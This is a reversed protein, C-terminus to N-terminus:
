QAPLPPVPMLECQTHVAITQVFLPCGVGEKGRSVRKRVNLRRKSKMGRSKSEARAVQEGGEALDQLVPNM